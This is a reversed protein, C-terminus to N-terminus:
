PMGAAEADMRWVQWDVSGPTQSDYYSAVLSVVPRVDCALLDEALADYVLRPVPAAGVTTRLFAVPHEDRILLVHVESYPEVGELVLGKEFSTPLGTGDVSPPCGSEPGLTVRPLELSAMGYERHLAWEFRALQSAFFPVEEVFFPIQSLEPGQSLELVRREHEVAQKFDGLRYHVTALTDREAVTARPDTQEVWAMGALATYLHERSTEPHVVLAWAAANLFYEPVEGSDFEALLGRAVSRTGHSVYDAATMASAAIFLLTLLASSVTALTDKRRALDLDPFSKEPMTLIVVLMGALLGGLHGFHDANPIVVPLVLAFFLLLGQSKVTQRRDESFRWSLVVNAGILGLLGTSAGVAVLAGTLYASALSGGLCSVFYLTLFRRPGLLQEFLGGLYLLAVLNLGLHLLDGHLFNGTALRQWEGAKVLVSSNAGLALMELPDRLAGTAMQVIFVAVVAASCTLTAPCSRLPPWRAARSLEVPAQPTRLDEM